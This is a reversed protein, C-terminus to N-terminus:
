APDRGPSAPSQEAGAGDGPKQMIKLSVGTTRSIQRGAPGECTDLFVAAPTLAHRRRYGDFFASSSFTRGCGHCLFRRVIGPARQIKRTGRRQFRYTVGAGERLTHQPCDPYPCFRPTFRLVERRTRHRQHKM